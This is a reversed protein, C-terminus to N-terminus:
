SGTSYGRIVPDPSVQYISRTACVGQPYIFNTLEIDFQQSGEIAERVNTCLDQHTSVELLECGDPICESASRHWLVGQGVATQEM